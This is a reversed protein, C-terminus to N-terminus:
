KNYEVHNFGNNSAATGDQEGSEKNSSNQSDRGVGVAESDMLMAVWEAASAIM